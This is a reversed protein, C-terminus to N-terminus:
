YMYIYLVYICVYLITYYIEIAQTGGNGRRICALSLSIRQIEHRKIDTKKKMKYKETRNQKSQGTYIFWANNMKTHMTEPRTGIFEYSVVSFAVAVVIVVVFSWLHRVVLCFKYSFVSFSSFLCVLFLFYFFFLYHIKNIYKKKNMTLLYFLMQTHLQLHKDIIYKTRIHIVNM